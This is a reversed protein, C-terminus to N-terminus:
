KSGGFMDQLLLKYNVQQISDKEAGQWNEDFRITPASVPAAPYDRWNLCQIFENYNLQNKENLPMKTILARLLDDPVPVRLAHCVTRVADLDLFGCREKDHHMCGEALKTFNEFNHKRLQEQAVAVLTQVDVQAEEKSNSYYRAITMIEHTTLANGCLQQLLSSFQEFNVIGAGNPDNRTFFSSVEEQKGQAQSSLKGLIANMNAKPFESANREMYRFAYEDANILIFPQSNICVGAGVFLDQAQYYESLKTSYLPQDPKKVRGRELFKGGIIGSNRVPPEFVLITDDSLFFSIIFRRDQDIPKTTDMRALFRLVNSDLGHRDKEMFKIFDRKPPKPILGMCSCLSDEESGFGNYPPYERGPRTMSRPKYSIPQLDTIGYKTKYYEKTFEDCDCITFKRGWVNLVTGITLDSDKYFEEHVAGTKLSDLIYRGGHGTPGFVNLVTRDTQVGPQKLNAINKPLKARHLFMPAADRGSNSEIVERIEITDDALFYHLVMERPDGFMNDTDDWFCHFRLVHRDHDLFQKLTDHKEYPRLPQMSEDMAKRHSMYPDGPTQAPHQVKVGLKRLFNHTFEDCGTLKFVRSYMAIERGVNFDEVTYFEDDNPPPKPIRHRRILTGQPIGSNKLRPEIVQISDDELYFYVKCHRIRYQEERKEHVAEQFYGDFCLVQRDFAVWAPLDGGQGRPIVSNKTRAKQGLLLEGGIGPKEEGVLMSVDNNYDFHHSKHYKNKGLNQNFTNGPLFPLAM